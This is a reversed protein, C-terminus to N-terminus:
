PAAYPSPRACAWYCDPDDCGALGDGDLDEGPRCSELPTSSTRTMVAALVGAVTSAVYLVRGGAPDYATWAHEAQQVPAAPLPTTSAITFRGTRM